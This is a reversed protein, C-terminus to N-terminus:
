QGNTNNGFMYLENSKNIAATNRYYTSFDRIGDMLKVTKTVYDGSYKNTLKGSDSSGM